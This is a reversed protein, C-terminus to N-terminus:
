SATKPTALANSRSVNRHEVRGVLSGCRTTELKGPTNAAEVMRHTADQVHNAALMIRPNMCGRRQNHKASPEQKAYRWRVPAPDDQSNRDHPGRFRQVRGKLKQCVYGRRLKVRENAVGLIYRGASNKQSSDSGHGDPRDDKPGM